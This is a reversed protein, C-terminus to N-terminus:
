CLVGAQLICDITHAKIIELCCYFVTEAELEGWSTRIGELTVKIMEPPGDPFVAPVVDRNVDLISANLVLRSPFELCTKALDGFDM